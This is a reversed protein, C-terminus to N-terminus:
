PARAPNEEDLEWSQPNEQIYRRISRLDDEGRIVHEHFNRQWVQGGPTRRAQNIQRTSASKFARVISPLSRPAMQGFARLNPSPAPASSRAHGGEPTRLPVAHQAGVQLADLIILIGHVHNPMVVFADVAVGPFHVPIASWCRRVIEGFGTLQVQTDIVDGFLCQRKHACVTIFYAGPRGYDYAPLRLSPKRRMAAM